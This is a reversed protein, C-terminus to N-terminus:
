FPGILEKHSFALRFPFRLIELPSKVSGNSIYPSHSAKEVCEPSVEGNQSVKLFHEHFRARKSRPPGQVAFRAGSPVPHRSHTTCPGPNGLGPVRSPTAWGGYGWGSWGRCPKRPGSRQSIAGKPEARPPQTTCRYLGQTGVRYVWGPVGRPGTSAYTCRQYVAPLVAPVHM